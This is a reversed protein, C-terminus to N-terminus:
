TDKLAINCEGPNEEFNSLTKRVIIYHVGYFVCALIAAIINLLEIINWFSRIFKKGSTKVTKALNYIYYITFIVFILEALLRFVARGGVYNYLRLTHIRPYSNTGGTEPFEMLLNVISFLNTNPNFLNFEAFVGRSSRDLWRTDRLHDIITQSRDPKGELHSVYGGGSYVALDGILPMGDLELTTSYAWPSDSLSLNAPANSWSVEYDGDDHSSSSYGPYCGKVFSQMQPTTHCDAVAFYCAMIDCHKCFLLTLDVTIKIETM